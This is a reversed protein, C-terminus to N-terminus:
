VCVCLEPGKMLIRLLTQRRVRAGARARVSQSQHTKETIIGVTHKKNKNNQKDTEKNAGIVSEERQHDLKCILEGGGWWWWLDKLFM